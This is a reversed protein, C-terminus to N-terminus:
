SFSLFLRVHLSHGEDNLSDYPQQRPENENEATGHDQVPMDGGPAPERDGPVVRAVPGRAHGQHSADGADAGNGTGAHGIVFKIYQRYNYVTENM